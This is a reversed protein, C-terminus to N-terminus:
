QLLKSVIGNVVKGETRGAIKAMVQKMVIGFEKKTAGTESIVQKVLAAIEEEGMEEPLYAKLIELNKEEQRVLDDRKGRSFQELSESIQKVQTRLVKVVDQDDLDKHMDVQKYKIASLALRLCSVRDKDRAKIASELDSKIRDILM